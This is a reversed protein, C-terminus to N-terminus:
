EVADNLAHAVFLGRMRCAQQEVDHVIPRQAPAHLSVGNSYMAGGYRARRKERRRNPRL